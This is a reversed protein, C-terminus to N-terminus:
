FVGFVSSFFIGGEHGTKSIPVWFSSFESFAPNRPRPREHKEWVDGEDYSVYVEGEFSVALVTNDKSILKDILSNPLSLVEWDSFAVSCFLSLIQLKKYM